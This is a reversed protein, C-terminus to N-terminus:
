IALDEAKGGGSLHDKFWQPQRGRGSWTMTANEPHKYKAPAKAKAGKGKRAGKGDILDALTFGDKALLAEVEGRLEKLRRGAYDAEAKALEKLKAEADAKAKKIAELSMKEIKAM